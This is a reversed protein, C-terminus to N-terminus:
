RGHVEKTINTFQRHQERAVPNWIEATLGLTLGIIVVVIWGRVTLRM